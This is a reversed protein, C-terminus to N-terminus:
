MLGQASSQGRPSHELVMRGSSAVGMQPMTPWRSGPRPAIPCQQHVLAAYLLYNTPDHLKWSSLLMLQANWNIWAFPPSYGTQDPELQDISMQFLQQLLAYARFNLTVANTTTVWRQARKDWPPCLSRSPALPLDFFSPCIIIAHSDAVHYAPWYPQRTCADYYATSYAYQTLIDPTACLLLPKERRRRGRDSIPVEKGINSLQTLVNSAIYFSTGFLVPFGYRSPTDAFDNFTAALAQMALYLATRLEDNRDGCSIRYRNTTVSPGSGADLLFRIRDGTLGGPLEDRPGHTDISNPNPPSPPVVRDEPM